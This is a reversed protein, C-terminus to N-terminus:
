EITCTRDVYAGCNVAVKFPLLHTWEFPSTLLPISPNTDFISSMVRLLTNILSTRNRQRLASVTSLFPLALRLFCRSAYGAGM